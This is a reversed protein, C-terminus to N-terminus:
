EMVEIDEEVYETEEEVVLEKDVLQGCEICVLERFGPFNQYETVGGCEVCKENEDIM